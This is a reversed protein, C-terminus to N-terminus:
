VVLFQWHGPLDIAHHPTWVTVSAFLQGHRWYTSATACSKCFTFHWFFHHWGRWPASAGIGTIGSASNYICNLDAPVPVVTAMHFSLMHQPWCLRAGTGANRILVSGHPVHHVMVVLLHPWPHAAACPALTSFNSIHLILCDTWHQGTFATPM